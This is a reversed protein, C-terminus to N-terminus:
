PRFIPFNLVPTVDADRGVYLAYRGHPQLFVRLTSFRIIKLLLRQCKADGVNQM